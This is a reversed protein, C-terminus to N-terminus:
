FGIMMAPWRGGGAGVVIAGSVSVAGAWGLRGTATACLSVVQDNLIIM